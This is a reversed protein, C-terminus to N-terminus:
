FWVLVDTFGGAGDEDMGAAAPAAGAAAPAAVAVAASVGFAGELAKVLESLDLVSMGKIAELIQDKSMTTM